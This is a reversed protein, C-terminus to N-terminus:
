EPFREPVVVEVIGGRAFRLGFHRKDLEHPRLSDWQKDTGAVVRLPAWRVVPHAGRLFAPGGMLLARRLAPALAAAHWARGVLWARPATSSATPNSGSLRRDSPPQGRMLGLRHFHRWAPVPAGYTSAPRASSSRTLSHRCRTPEQPMPVSRRMRPRPRAIGSSPRGLRSPPQRPLGPRLRSPPAIMAEGLLRRAM